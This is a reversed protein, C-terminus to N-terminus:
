GWRGQGLRGVGGNIRSTGQGGDLAGNQHHIILRAIQLQHCFDDFFVKWFQVELCGGITFLGPLEEILSLGERRRCGLVLAM